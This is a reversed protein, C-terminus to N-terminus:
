GEVYHRGTDKVITIKYNFGDASVYIEEPPAKGSVLDFAGDKKRINFCLPNDETVSTTGTGDKYTVQIDGDGVANGTGDNPCKTPDSVGSMGKDLFAIYYDGDYKYLHMYVPNSKAMNETKLDSLGSNIQNALEKADALRFYGFGFAALGTMIAMIGLVIILEVLSFGEKKRM